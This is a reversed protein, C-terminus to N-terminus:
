EFSASLLTNLTAITVKLLLGINKLYKPPQWKSLKILDVLGALYNRLNCNAPFNRFKKPCQLVRWKSLLYM